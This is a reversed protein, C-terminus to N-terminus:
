FPSSVLNFLPITAFMSNLPHPRFQFVHVVATGTFGACADRTSRLYHFAHPLAQVPPGLVLTMRPVYATPSSYFQFAYPLTTPGACADFTSGICYRFQFTDQVLPGLM